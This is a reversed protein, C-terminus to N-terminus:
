GHFRSARILLDGRRLERSRRAPGGARPRIRPAASEDHIARPRVAQILSGRALADLARGALETTTGTLAALTCPELELGPHLGALRFSRAADSDMQRYSWSFAVRVDAVPDSTDTFADLGPWAALETAIRALPLDPRLEARAAVICLAM